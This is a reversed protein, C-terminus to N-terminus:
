NRVPPPPPWVAGGAVQDLEADGLARDKATLAAKCGTEATTGRPSTTTM